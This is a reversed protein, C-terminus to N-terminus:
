ADLVGNDIQTEMEGAAEATENGRKSFTSGLKGISDKLEKSANPFQDMSKKITEFSGGLANMSGGLSGLKGPFGNLTSLKGMEGGLKNLNKTISGLGSNNIGVSKLVSDLAGISNSFSNVTGAVAALPATVNRISRGVNGIASGVSNITNGVSSMTSGFSSGFGSPLGSNPSLANASVAKSGRMLDAGMAPGFSELRSGINTTPSNSVFNTGQNSAAKDLTEYPSPIPNSQNPFDLYNEAKLNSAGPIVSNLPSNAPIPLATEAVGTKKWYKYVLQINLKLVDHNANSFMLDSMTKPYAEILTISYITKGAKDLAEITVDRTYNRYFGVTRNNRNYVLDSWTDFYSKADFKNNVILTLNVPPYTIGYPLESVEGMTRVEHTMVMIGPMQVDDCLMAVDESYVSGISPLTIQFHSATPLGIERIHAIFDNLDKKGAM